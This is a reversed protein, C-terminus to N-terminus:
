ETLLERLMQISEDPYTYLHNALTPAALQSDHDNALLYLGVMRADPNSSNILDNALPISEAYKQETIFILAELLDDESNSQEAKELLTQSLTVPITSGSVEHLAYAYTLSTKFDVSSDQVQEALM